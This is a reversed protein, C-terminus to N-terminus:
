WRSRQGGRLNERWLNCVSNGECWKKVLDVGVEDDEGVRGLGEKNLWLALDEIVIPEYILIKEYWTLDKPDNTPPFTTIAKTISAMLPSDHASKDEIVSAERSPSLPLETAPKSPNRRRPPSPTPSASDHIDDELDLNIAETPPTAKAARKPSSARSSSDKRPRGRPKKPSIVNSTGTPANTPTTPRKTKKKKRELSHGNPMKISVAQAAPPALSVNSSLEQLAVNKMSEWCKELLSVMAERKKVPKFGYSAIENRLQTDSFGKYNPVTNSASGTLVRKEPPTKPKQRKGLTKEAVSIPLRNGSVGDVGKKEITLNSIIGKRYATKDSAEGPVSKHERFSRAAPLHDTENIAAHRPTRSLDVVEAELVSDDFDRAAASWLGRSPSLVISSSMRHSLSPPIFANSLKGQSTVKVDMSESEKIAQQLDRLFTPSEERALQSSTGFVLEQGRAKKMATEPSLLVPLNKTSEKAKSSVKKPKPLRKWPSASLSQVAAGPGLRQAPLPTDFYQLLSQTTPEALPETPVFPATAKETITQPKKKPSKSRKSTEALPASTLGTVLEIKRKKAVADRNLPEVTESAVIAIDDPASFGFESLLREFGGTSSAQKKDFRVSSVGAAAADIKHSCDETDKVPTWNARRTTALNLNLESPAKAAPSAEGDTLLISLTSPRTKKTKKSASGKQAKRSSKEVGPKTVKASRIQMQGTADLKTKKKPLRNPSPEPNAEVVPKRVNPRDNWVPAQLTQVTAEMTNGRKKIVSDKGNTGKVKQHKPPDTVSPQPNYRDAFGLRSAGPPSIKARLSSERLLSASASAPEVEKESQFQSPM